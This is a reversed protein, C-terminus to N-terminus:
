TSFYELAEAVVFTSGGIFVLDNENANKLVEQVAHKVGHTEVYKLNVSKAASALEATDMARPIDAKTFYFHANPPFLRLIHEPNKESVLGLILHIKECKVELLQSIVYRLGEKNHGTDCVVYPNKALVQWRGFLGTETVVHALGHLIHKSSFKINKKLVELATLATAVNKKQYDGLLDISYSKLETNHLFAIEQRYVGNKSSQFVFEDEAFILSSGKEKTINKFVCESEVKREGIIVPVGSKIIGGKEGAIQSITNGLFQIHDLGINTIVSLLPTIVNTSDLRGGMGVEVIAIDVKEEKFYQFAMMVMLEFFSPKIEEIIEMHQAVFEVVYKKSAMQGNVKMRERMDLLHPSTYLGVKFGATQLVSALMHSVSGKGNTGAVHITKYSLHPFKFYADLAHTNNLNAKYASKGERQFVPLQEYLFNLTGEYDMKPM